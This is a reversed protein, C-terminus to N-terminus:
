IYAGKGPKLLRMLNNRRTSAKAHLYPQGQSIEHVVGISASPLKESLRVTDIYHQGTSLNDSVVFLFPDDLTGSESNKRDCIFSAMSVHQKANLIHAAHDLRRQWPSRNDRLGNRISDCLNTAVNVEYLRASGDVCKERARMAEICREAKIRAATLSSEPSDLLWEDNMRYIVRYSDIFKAVFVACVKGARTM